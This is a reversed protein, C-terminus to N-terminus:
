HLGHYTTALGVCWTHPHTYTFQYIICYIIKNIYIQTHTIYTVQPWYLSKYQFFIQNPLIALWDPAELFWFTFIFTKTCLLLSGTLTDVKLFLVPGHSALCLIKNLFTWKSNLAKVFSSISKYNCLLLKSVVENGNCYFLVM